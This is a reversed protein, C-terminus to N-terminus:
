EFYISLAIFVKYTIESCDNNVHANVMPYKLLAMSTAKILLPMFTMKVKNEKGISKMLKKLRCFCM